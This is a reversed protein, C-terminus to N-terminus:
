TKGAHQITQVNQQKCMKHFEAKGGYLNHIKVWYKIFIKMCKASFTHEKTDITTLSSAIESKIM